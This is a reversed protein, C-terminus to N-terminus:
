PNLVEVTVNWGYGKYLNYLDSKKNNFIEKSTKLDLVKTKNMIQFCSSTRGFDLRGDIQSYFETDYINLKLPQASAAGGGDLTAELDQKFQPLKKQVTTPDRDFVFKM